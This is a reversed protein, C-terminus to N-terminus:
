NNPYLKCLAELAPEERTEIFQNNTYQCVLVDSRTYWIYKQCYFFDFMVNTYQTIMTM